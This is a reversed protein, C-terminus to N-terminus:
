RRWPLRAAVKARLGALAGRQIRPQVDLEAFGTQPDLTRAFKAGPAAHLVVEATTFVTTAILHGGVVAGEGDSLAVHLHAGDPGVTGVLSLIKHPDDYQRLRPRADSPSLCTAMRLTASSVSGVCTAVYGAQINHRAAYDLLAQKLEAGPPLRFAHVVPPGQFSYGNARTSLVALALLLGAALSSARYDLANMTGVYLHSHM